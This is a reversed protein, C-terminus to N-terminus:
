WRLCDELTFDPAYNPPRSFRTIDLGSSQCHLTPDAVLESTAQDDGVAGRLVCVPCFDSAGPFPTGCVQCVRKDEAKM